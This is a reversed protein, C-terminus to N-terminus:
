EASNISDKRNDEYEEYSMRAQELCAERAHEDLNECYQERMDQSSQYIRQNSCASCILMAGVLIVFRM